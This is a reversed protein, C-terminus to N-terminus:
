VEDEEPVRFNETHYGWHTKGEKDVVICHGKMQIIEGLYLFPQGKKFTAFDEKAIVIQNKTLPVPGTRFKGGCFWCKGEHDKTADSMKMGCRGCRYESM